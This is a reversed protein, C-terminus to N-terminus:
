RLPPEGDVTQLVPLPAGALPLGESELRGLWQAILSQVSSLDLRYHLPPYKQLNREALELLAKAPGVRGKQVHVFAGALQILGKYYSGDVGQRDQLWLDELVEHAEFFCGQNFYDMFALYHPDLQRGHFGAIM